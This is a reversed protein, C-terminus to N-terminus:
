KRLVYDDALSGTIPKGKMDLQILTNEAVKYYPPWDKVNLKIVNGNNEWKFTGTSNFQNNPRDLYEYVLVFTQDSNLTLRVNIGSGSASPITGTYFGAWDLSNKSNHPDNLGKNSLCSGFASVVLVAVLLYVLLTKIKM